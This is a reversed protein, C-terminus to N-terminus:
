WCTISKVQPLVGENSSPLSLQQLLYPCLTPMHESMAEECGEAVAGLALISAERVWPDNLNFGHQLTPLLPPLIIAPGYVSSLTDLSAAACKRLTWEQLDDETNLDEEDEDGDDESHASSGGRCSRSKPFLPAIDTQRDEVDAEDYKNEELLEEKKEDTYVMSSVLLPVLQPMVNQVSTAMDPTCDAEDMAAFALWFECAELSVEPCNDKMAHLMFHVISDFHPEVYETRKTMLQVIAQCVLVRIKANADVALSSLKQLYTDFHLALDAPMTEVLSNLCRLSKERYTPEPLDLYSIWIPVLQSIPRQCLESDLMSPSDECFKVLTDLASKVGIDGYQSGNLCNILFPLLNPWHQVSFLSSDSLGSLSVIISSTISRIQADSPDVLCRLLISKIEEVYDQSLTMIQTQPPKLQDFSADGRPLSPPYLLANKVILGAMCRLYTWSGPDHQLQMASTPDTHEFRAFEEESVESMSSCRFIRAMNVVLTSYSSSSESLANDRAALASTHRDHNSPNLLAALFAILTGQPPVDASLVM